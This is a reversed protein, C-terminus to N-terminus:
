QSAQRAHTGTRMGTSATRASASRLAAGPLLVLRELREREAQAEADLVVRQVQAILGRAVGAAAHVLVAAVLVRVEQQLAADVRAQHLEAVVARRVMTLM